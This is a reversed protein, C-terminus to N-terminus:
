GMPCPERSEEREGASRDYQEPEGRECRERNRQFREPEHM